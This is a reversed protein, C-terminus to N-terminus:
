GCLKSKRQRRLVQSSNDFFNNSHKQKQKHTVPPLPATDTQGNSPPRRAAASNPKRFLEFGRRNDTAPSRPRAPATQRRATERDKVFAIRRADDIITKDTQKFGSVSIQPRSGFFAADHTVTLPSKGAVADFL